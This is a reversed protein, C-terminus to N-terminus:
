HLLLRAEKVAPGADSDAITFGRRQVLALMPQNTVLIRALIEEHGKRRAAEILHDLLRRGVGRRQWSASVMLTLESTKQGPEYVLRGSGVVSPPGNSSHLVLLHVAYEPDPSCMRRLEDDSPQFTGRGYRFYRTRFSLRRVSAMLLPLDGAEIPRLEFRAGDRGIWAEHM